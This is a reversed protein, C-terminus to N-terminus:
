AATTEGFLFSATHLSDLQESSVCAMESKYLFFAIKAPSCCDRQWELLPVDTTVQLGHAEEISWVHVFAVLSLQFWHIVSLDLFRYNFRDQNTTEVLGESLHHVEDTPIIIYEWRNYFTMWFEMTGFWWCGHSELSDWCTFDMADLPSVWSRWFRWGSVYCRIFFQSAKELAGAAFTNSSVFSSKRTPKLIVNYIYTIIYWSMDYRKDITM